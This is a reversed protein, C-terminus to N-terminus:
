AASRQTRKRRAPTERLNMHHAYRHAAEIDARSIPIPPLQHVISEQSGGSVIGHARTNSAHEAAKARNKWQEDAQADQDAETVVPEHVVVHSPGWDERAMAAGIDYGIKKGAVIVVAGVAIGTLVTGLVKAMVSLPLIRRSEIGRLAAWQRAVFWRRSLPNPVVPETRVAVPDANGLILEVHYDNGVKSIKSVVYDTSQLQAVLIPDSMLEMMGEETGVCLCDIHSASTILFTYSASGRQDRLVKLIDETYKM